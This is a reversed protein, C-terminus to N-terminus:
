DAWCDPGIELDAVEVEPTPFRVCLIEVVEVLFPPKIVLPPAVRGHMTNTSREESALVLDVEEAVDSIPM